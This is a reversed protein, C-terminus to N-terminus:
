TSVAAVVGVCIGAIAGSSLGSPEGISKGGSNQDNSSPNGAGDSSLNGNSSANSDVSYTTDWNYTQVNLVHFDNTALLTNDIGFMIFLSNNKLVALYYLVNVNSRVYVPKYIYICVLIGLDQAQV